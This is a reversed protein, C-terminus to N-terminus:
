MQKYDVSRQQRRHKGQQRHPNIPQRIYAGQDGGGNPMGGWGGNQQGQWGGYPMGGYMGNMGGMPNFGPMGMMMAPNGMMPMGMPNMMAPMGGQMGPMSAAAMANMQAAFDQMNKPIPMPQNAQQQAKPGTPIPTGQNSSSKKMDVPNTPKRNNELEEDASRKRSQPTSSASTAIGNVKIDPVGAAPSKRGAVKSVEGKQSGSAPSQSAETEKRKKEAQKEEEYQVVKKVAEEDTELKDLLLQEGCNPCTLDGDLLANEVCDRCYTKNCCPTKVPDVFLRKDISCELGRNRLEVNDASAEKAQDASAKQKEQFQDWAAKDPKAIVWEGSSTYMVGPPLKSVDIKGDEGVDDPKEIVELMSRPIGTTRRFKPRNDFNPDNNTPCSQIWHGKEGCRHCTYGPPLPKDPAASSKNFSRVFPKNALQAQDAKWSESNMELMAKLKEDETMEKGSNSAFNTSPTNNRSAASPMQEIRHANKANVPMKGTVYRAAREAGPRSAPIRRFIVTTSRPIQTTDDDYEQCTLTSDFHASRSPAFSKSEMSEPTYIELDIDTGDGLKEQMMIDRKVEFVSLSTGDFTLQRSDKQSKGRYFISSSM